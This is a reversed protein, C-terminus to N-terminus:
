AYCRSINTYCRMQVARLVTVPQVRDQCIHTCIICTYVFTCLVYMRVYVISFILQRSPATYVQSRIGVMLLCSNCQKIYGRLKSTDRRAWAGARGMPIRPQARLYYYLRPLLYLVHHIDTRLVSLKLRVNSVCIIFVCVTTSCNAVQLQRVSGTCDRTAPLGCLHGRSRHNDQVDLQVPVAEHPQERCQEAVEGTNLSLYSTDDVHNTVTHKLAKHMCEM